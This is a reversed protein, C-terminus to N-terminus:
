VQALADRVVAELRDLSELFVEENSKHGHAEICLTPTEAEDVTFHVMAPMFRAHDKGSKCALAVELEVCEDPNLSILPADVKAWAAGPPESVFDAASVTRLGATATNTVHLRLVAAPDGCMPVQGVRHALYEDWFSSHNQLIRVTDAAMGQVDRWCVRRLGNAVATGYGALKVRLVTGREVEM